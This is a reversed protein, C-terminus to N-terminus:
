QASGVIVKVRWCRLVAFVSFNTVSEVAWLIMWFSIKWWWRQPKCFWELRRLLCLAQLVKYLRVRGQIFVTFISGNGDWGNGIYGHFEQLPISLCIRFQSVRTKFHFVSVENNGYSKLGLSTKFLIQPRSESLKQAKSLECTSLELVLTEM